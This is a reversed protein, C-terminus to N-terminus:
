VFPLYQVCTIASEEAVTIVGAQLGSSFYHAM